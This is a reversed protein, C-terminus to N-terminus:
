GCRWPSPKGGIMRELTEIQGGLMREIMERQAAPAQELQRRMQELGQRAQERDEPSVGAAALDAEIETLFPHLFGEVERYDSLRVAMSVPRQQGGETVTGDITMALPVMRAVELEVVMRGPVMDLDQGPVSGALDIGEFDDLVLRWTAAGGISGQGDLSWRDAWEEFMQGPDMLFEQGIDSTATGGLGGLEVSHVTLVPRGDIIQKAMYTTAQFGMIEQRIMVNEVSAMRREHAEMAQGMIQTVSQAAGASPLVLVAGALLLTSAGLLKRVRLSRSPRPKGARPPSSGWASNPSLPLTAPATATM